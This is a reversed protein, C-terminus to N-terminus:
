GSACDICETATPLAELRKAAIEGGCIACTGYSGADLRALARRIQRIEAVGAEEMSALMDQDELDQAQEEFDADLPERREVDLDRVRGTLAGLRERLTARIKAEDIM